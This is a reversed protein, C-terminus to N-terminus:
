LLRMLDFPNNAQMHGTSFDSDRYQKFKLMTRIQAAKQSVTSSSTGFLNFTVMKTIEDERAKLEAKEM